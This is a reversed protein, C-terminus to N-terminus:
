FVLIYPKFIILKFFLAEHSSLPNLPVFVIEILANHNWIHVKPDFM